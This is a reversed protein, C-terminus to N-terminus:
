RPVEMDASHIQRSDPPAEEREQLGYDRMVYAIRLWYNSFVGSRGMAQAARHPATNRWAKVAEEDRFFSLSLMKDPNSISQFREVSVFGDITELEARLSAAIDLYHQKEGEASWVEFIVAIM